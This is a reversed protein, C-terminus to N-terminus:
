TFDFGESANRIALLLKDRLAAASTYNPLRLLNFCTSASPLRESSDDLSITFPREGHEGGLKAFGGIPVRSSGTSFQLVLAREPQEFAAMVVWFYQVSPSAATYGSYKCHAQWDRVDIEPIGSILLELEFEDFLSLLPRPIFSWLGKRFSDIQMRISGSLKQAVLLQVYGHKNEDTVAIDAGGPVLEVQETRGLSHHEMSFSLDLGADTIDNELIWNISQMYEPDLSAADQYHAPKGLMHKYFSRTFHVSLPHRHFIGLGVIRGAFELYSLHDPNVSSDPNPQFTTLDSSPVFLGYDPNVIERVLLEFWERKVGDGVGPEGDFRVAFPQKHQYVGHGASDSADPHWARDVGIHDIGGNGRAPGSDPLGGQPGGVDLMTPAGGGGMTHGDPSTSVPHSGGSASGGTFSSSRFRQAFVGFAGGGPGRAPGGSGGTAAPANPERGVPHDAGTRGDGHVPRPLFLECSSEFLNKRSVVLVPTDWTAHLQAGGAAQQQERHDDTLFKYFWAQRVEFSESRVADSFLHLLGHHGLIFNLKRFLVSVNNQIIWGIIRRHRVFFSHVMPALTGDDIRYLTYYAHIMAVVRDTAKGALGVAVLSAGKTGAGQMCGPSYCSFTTAAATDPPPATADSTPSTPPARARARCAASYCPTSATEQTTESHMLVLWAGLTEWLPRLIAHAQQRLAPMHFTKDHKPSHRREQLLLRLARTLRAMEDRATQERTSLCLLQQGVAQVMNAVAEVTTKMAAASTRSYLDLTQLIVDEDFAPKAIVHVLRALLQPFKVILRVACQAHQERLCIHFADTNEQDSVLRAGRALLLDCCEPSGSECAYYLPTRGSLDMRHIDAGKGLLYNVCHTHGGRSAAHLATQGNHDEFDVPPGLSFLLELREVHGNSALWHLATCGKADAISVNAGFQNVLAEAVERHGNRAALHFATGGASDQKDVDAGLRILYCLCNHAGLSAAVHLIPRRSRGFTSNVDIDSGVVLKVLNNADDNIIFNHLEAVINFDNIHTSNPICSPTQTTKDSSVTRSIAVAEPQLVQSRANPEQQAQSGAQVGAVSDDQDNARHSIESRGADVDANLAAPIQTPSPIREIRLLSQEGDASIGGFSRSRTHRTSQRRLWRQM